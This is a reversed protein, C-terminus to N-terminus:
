IKVMEMERCMDALADDVHEQCIIEQDMARHGAAKFIQAVDSGSFGETARALETLDLVSDVPMHQTKMRIIALRTEFDPLGMFIKRDFRRLLAPDLLDKRNTAAMIFVGKLPVIGDIETLMTQLVNLGGHDSGRSRGIADIEDFFIISPCATRAKNFIDRLARESEGVYMSYFEAASVAFFSLERESAIAQATMTKSCGPPGYLLVSKVPEFGGQEREEYGQTCYSRFLWYSTSYLRVKFSKVVHEFEKKLDDSRAIDSWKVKPLGGIEEKKITPKVVALASEIDQEAFEPMTGKLGVILDEWLIDDSESLLRDVANDAAAHVLEELDAGVFGHTREALVELQPFSRTSPFDCLLKLIEMRSTTNPVTIEIEYQFRKRCRLGPAITELRDTAAVVLVRNDERRDFAACLSQTFQSSFSQSDDLSDIKRAFRDLNDIIIVSPQHDNADAFMKHVSDEVQGHKPFINTGDIHFVKNWGANAIKGLIKSKGTGHVGHLIFGGRRIKYNAYNTSEAGLNSYPRLIRNIKNIQSDLGGILENTIKLTETQVAKPEAKNISRDQIHIIKTQESSYLAPDYSGNVRVVKFSRQEGVGKIGQFSLGPCVVQAKRVHYTLLHSWSIKDDESSFSPANDHDTDSIEELVVEKADRVSKESRLIIVEDDLKLNYAEQLIRTTLIAYDKVKEVAKWAIAPLSRNDPTIINCLKGAHLGLLSITTASFYVHFAEKLDTRQNRCPRVVCKKTETM